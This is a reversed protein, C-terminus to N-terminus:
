AARGAANLGDLFAQSSIWGPGRRDHLVWALTAPKPEGRWSRLSAQDSRGYRLLSGPLSPLSRSGPVPHRRCLESLEAAFARASPLRESAELALCKRLFARWGAIAEDNLPVLSPDLYVDPDGLLHFRDRRGQGTPVVFSREDGFVAGGLVLVVLQALAFVDTAPSVPRALVQEPANWGATGATARTGEKVDLSDHAFAGREGIFINDPKLDCHILGREHLPELSRAVEAVLTLMEQRPVTWAIHDAWSLAAVYREFDRVEGEECREDETERESRVAHFTARQRALHELVVPRYTPSQGEVRRAVSVEGTVLPVVVRTEAALEARVSLREAASLLVGVSTREALVQPTSVQGDRDLLLPSKAGLLRSMLTPGLLGAPSKTTLYAPSEGLGAARVIGDNRREYRVQKDLAALHARMEHSLEDVRHAHLERLVTPTVTVSRTVALLLPLGDPAMGLPVWADPTELLAQRPSSHLHGTRDTVSHWRPPLFPVTSM